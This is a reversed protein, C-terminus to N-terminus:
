EDLFSPFSDREGAMDFLEAIASRGGNVAAIVEKPSKGDIFCGVSVCTGLVEKVTGKLSKSRSNAKIESAIKFVETLPLNGNHLSPTKDAGKKKPERKEKLGRIVLQATTPSLTCTAKRDKVKLLVHVKQLHYDKLTLKRVDEGVVKGPIKLPGVKQSFTAGPQEGGVVRVILYDADPDRDVIEAM